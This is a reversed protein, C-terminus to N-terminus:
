QAPARALGAERLAMPPPTVAPAVAQGDRANSQMLAEVVRMGRVADDATALAPTKGAIGSLWTKHHLCGPTSDPLEPAHWIPGFRAPVFASLRGRETRLWLTGCEGYIEMRFRDCGATETMSMEHTVQTGTDLMYIACANDVVEVDVRTGDRLCREPLATHARASVSVVRGLLQEVLDIGHVGLQDVVGNRVSAKRFFWAGWDPGPTANRIRATLVRGILGEELWRRAAVVEDFYRHMFSVQLDIGCASATTAIRLAGDLSGAMPKQLLVAKGARAAAVAIAEHTDDPTAVIVAHVDTRALTEAIDISTEPVGFRRALPEVRARTRGVLVRVDAGGAAALGGLHYEAIHGAGLVAVGIRAAAM